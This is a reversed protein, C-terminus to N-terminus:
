PRRRRVRRRRFSSSWSPRCREVAGRRPGDVVAVRRAIAHRSADGRDLEGRRRPGRRREVALEVALREDGAPADEDRGLVVGDVRERGRGARHRPGRVEPSRNGRSRQRAAVDRRGDADRASRDDVCCADSTNTTASSSTLPPGPGRAPRARCRWRALHLQGLVHVRRPRGRRGQQLAGAEVSSAPRTTKPYPPLKPSQEVYWPQTTETGSVPPVAASKAPRSPARALALTGDPHAARRRDHVGAAVDPDLGAVARHSM